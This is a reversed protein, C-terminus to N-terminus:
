HLSGFLDERPPTWRTVNSPCGERELAMSTFNGRVGTDFRLDMILNDRVVPARGFQLWARVWCDRRSLDRAQSVTYLFDDRWAVSGAALSRSEGGGFRYSACREPRYWQPMLSITGRSTRYEGTKDTRGIVIVSWCVPMGPDPSVIVDVIEGGSTTAAVAEAKAVRSLVFLGAIFCTTLALAYAARARSGLRCVGAFFLAATVSTMVVAAVPVVGGVAVVLFLAAVPISILLRTTRGQANCVAAVGLVLWILPEFIFVADGYYWSSTFPYFPHVGYANCADVLVHVLLNVAVLGWLRTRGDGTLERVAPWFRLLLPALVGLLLLGALTHTHGRHHLLYGLPAPTIWTYALDIDPLNAVVVSAAVLARRERPSASAPLAAEAIALGVLSHTVNDLSARTPDPPRLYREFPQWSMM